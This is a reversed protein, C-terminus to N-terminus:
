AIGQYVNQLLSANNGREGVGMAAMRKDVANPIFIATEYQTVIICKINYHQYSGEVVEALSSRERVSSLVQILGRGEYLV